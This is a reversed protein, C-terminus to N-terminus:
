YSPTIMLLQIALPLKAIPMVKSMQEQIVMGVCSLAPINQGGQWGPHVSVAQLMCVVPEIPDPHLLLLASQRCIENHM